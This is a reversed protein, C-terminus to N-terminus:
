PQAAAADDGAVGDAGSRARRGEVFHRIRRALEDRFADLDAPMDDYDNGTHGETLAVGGRLPSLKQLTATLNALTRAAREQDLPSQPLGALQARSAKVDALLKVAADHLAEATDAIQEPQLAQAADTEGGGARSARPPSPDPTPPAQAGDLGGVGDAQAQQALEPPRGEGGSRPPLSLAADGQEALREARALLRAAPSLDRPPPVFRVWGERKAINCVTQGSCGLDAAMTSLRSTTHEYRHRINALLEPTAKIRRAEIARVPTPRGM